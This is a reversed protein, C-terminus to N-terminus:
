TGLLSRVKLLLKKIVRTFTSVFLILLEGKVGYTKLKFLLKKHKRHLIVTLRLTSITLFLYYSHFALIALCFALNVNVLYNSYISTVLFTM